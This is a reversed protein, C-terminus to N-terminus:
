HHGILGSHDQQLTPCLPALVSLGLGLPAPRSQKLFMSAM